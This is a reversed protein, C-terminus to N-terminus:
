PMMLFASYNQLAFLYLLVFKGGFIEIENNKIVANDEHATVRETDTHDESGKLEDGATSKRAKLKPHNKGKDENKRDTKKRPQRHKENDQKVRESVRRPRAEHPRKNVKVVHKQQNEIIM